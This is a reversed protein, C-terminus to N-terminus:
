GLIDGFGKTKKVKFDFPKDMQDLLFEDLGDDVMVTKKQERIEERLKSQKEKNWASVVDRDQVIYALGGPYKLAGPKNQIFYQLAFKIYNVDIKKSFIMNNIISVLMGVQKGTLFPDIERCFLDRIENVTQMTHFCDPHYYSKSKTQIADEKKLETTEHLKTCKPYRCHVISQAQKAM